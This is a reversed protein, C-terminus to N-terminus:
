RQGDGTVPPRYGGRKHGTSPTLTVSPRRKGHVADYHDDMLQWVEELSGATFREGCTCMQVSRRQARM